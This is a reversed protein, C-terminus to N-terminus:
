AYDMVKCANMIGLFTLKCLSLSWFISISPWISSIFHHCLQFAKISSFRFINNLTMIQNGLSHPIAILSQQLFPGATFVVWIIPIQVDKPITTATININTVALSIVLCPIPIPMHSYLLVIFDVLKSLSSLYFELQCLLVPGLELCNVKISDQLCSKWLM